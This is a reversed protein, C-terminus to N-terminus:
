GRPWLRFLEFLDPPRAPMLTRFSAFRRAALAILVTVLAGMRVPRRHALRLSNDGCRRIGICWGHVRGSACMPWFVLSFVLSFLTVTGVPVFIAAFTRAEFAAFAAAISAGILALAV